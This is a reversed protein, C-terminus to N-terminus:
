QPVRWLYLNNENARIQNGEFLVQRHDSAFEFVGISATKSVPASILYAPRGDLPVYFLKSEIATVRSGSVSKLLIKQKDSSVKLSVQKLTGEPSPLSNAVTCAGSDRTAFINLRQSSDDLGVIVFSNHSSEVVALTNVQPCIEQVRGDVTSVRITKQRDSTPDKTVGVYAASDQTFFAAVGGSMLPLQHSQGTDLDMLKTQARNKLNILLGIRADPSTGAWLWDPPVTVVRGTDTRVALQLSLLPGLSANTWAGVQVVQDSLDSFKLDYPAYGSPLNLNFKKFGVGEPGSVYLNMESACCIFAISDSKTSVAFRNVAVIQNSGLAVPNTVPSILSNLDFTPGGAVSVSKLWPDLHTGSNFYLYRGSGSFSYNSAVSLAGSVQVKDSGDRNVIFLPLLSPSNDDESYLITRADASIQFHNNATSLNSSLLSKQFGEATSSYLNARAIQSTGTDSSYVLARKDPSLKSYLVNVDVIQKSPWVSADLEGGFRCSTTRTVTQGDIEAKMQGVFTGPKTAPQDRHVTLEFGEGSRAVVTQASVVRAVSFDPIMRSTFKGEDDQVSYYIRNMASNTSRDFHMITEIGSEDDRDRCWLEVLNVPIEKPEHSWSEYIGDEFGIVENQYISVDVSQAPLNTSARGCAMQRNELVSFGSQDARIKMRYTPQSECTFGPVFRYFEGDPKGGYGGGNNESKLDIGEGKLAFQVQSCNQFGAITLLGLLLTQVKSPFKM